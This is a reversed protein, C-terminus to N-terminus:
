TYAIGDGPLACRALEADCDVVPRWKGAGCHTPLLLIAFPMRRVVHPQQLLLYTLIWDGSDPLQM